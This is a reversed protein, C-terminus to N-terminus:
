GCHTRHVFVGFQNQERTHYCRLKLKHNVLNLQPRETTRPPSPTPRSSVASSVGKSGAFSSNGMRANASDPMGLLSGAVTVAGVIALSVFRLSM